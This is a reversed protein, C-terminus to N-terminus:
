SPYRRAQHPGTIAGGPTMHAPLRQEALREAEKLEEGARSWTRCGTCRSNGELARQRYAADHGRQQRRKARNYKRKRPQEASRSDGLQAPGLHPSTAPKKIM